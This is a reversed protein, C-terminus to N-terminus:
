KKDVAEATLAVTYADRRRTLLEQVVAVGPCLSQVAATNVNGIGPERIVGPFVKVVLKEATSDKKFVLM